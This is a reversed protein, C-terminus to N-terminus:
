LYLCHPDDDEAGGPAGALLENRLSEPSSVMDCRESAAIRGHRRVTCERDDSAPREILRSHFM